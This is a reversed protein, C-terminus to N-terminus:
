DDFDNLAGIFGKKTVEWERKLLERGQEVATSALDVWSTEMQGKRLINRNLLKRLSELFLNDANAYKNKRPNIRLEIRCLIVRAESEIRDIEELTPSAKETGIVSARRDLMRIWRGSLGIYDAIDKRLESIWAQRFESIKTWRTLWAAFVAGGGAACSGWLTWKMVDGASDAIDPNSSASAYASGCCILVLSLLSFFRNLKRCM